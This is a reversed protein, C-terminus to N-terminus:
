KGEWRGYMDLQMAPTYTVGGYRVDRGFYLASESLARWLKPDHGKCGMQKAVKTAFALISHRQIDLWPRRQEDTLARGDNLGAANGRKRSDYSM